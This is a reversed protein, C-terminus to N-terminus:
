IIGKSLDAPDPKCDVNFEALCRVMHNFDFLDVTMESQTVRLYCHVQFM